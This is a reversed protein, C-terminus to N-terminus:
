HENMFAEASAELEMKGCMAMEMTLAIDDDNLGISKLWERFLAIGKITNVDGGANHWSAIYRSYHIDHAETKNNVFHDIKARKKFVKKFM